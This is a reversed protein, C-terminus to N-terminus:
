TQGANQGQSVCRRTSFTNIDTKPNNRITKQYDITNFSIKVGKNTIILFSTCIRILVQGLYTWAASFFSSFSSSSHALSWSIFLLRLQICKTGKEQFSQIRSDTIIPLHGSFFTKFFNVRTPLIEYMSALPIYM